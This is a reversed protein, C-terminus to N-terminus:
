RSERQRHEHDTWDLTFRLLPDGFRDTYTPDLDMYNQRWSLHEGVLSVEARRDYGQVAAAKSSLIDRYDENVGEASAV